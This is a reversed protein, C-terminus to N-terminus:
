PAAGTWLLWDPPPPEGDPPTWVALRGWPGAPAEDMPPPAGEVERPPPAEDVAVLVDRDPVLPM